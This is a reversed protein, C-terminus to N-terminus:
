PFISSVNPADDLVTKMEQTKEDVLKGNCARCLYRGNTVKTEVDQAEGIVDKVKKLWNQVGKKPIKGVPHLLEVKLQLKIDEMKSTLEDKIRKFNRVYDNLKRHYKLYKCVPAGLCNAVAVTPEVYEM